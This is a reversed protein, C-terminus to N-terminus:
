DLILYLHGISISLALMEYTVALQCAQTENSSILCTINELLSLVTPHQLFKEMGQKSFVLCSVSYCANRKVSCEKNALM